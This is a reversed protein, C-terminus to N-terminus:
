VVSWAPQTGTAALLSAWASEAVENGSVGSAPQRRSIHVRSGDRGRAEIVLRLESLAPDAVLVGRARDLGITALAGAVMANVNRPFRAAISRVTGAHLVTRTTIDAARIGATALEISGPPKEMRFTVSRWQDRWEALSAAGVLAGHPLLLRNGAAAGIAVLRGRLDDDVLATLSLPLYDASGLLREGQLRTIDPHAAEIIVDVERSGVAGLDALLQSEPVGAARAARPDRVHVFAPKLGHGGAALRRYLEAGVFGFGIIGVGIM